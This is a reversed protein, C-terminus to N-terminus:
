AVGGMSDQRVPFYAVAWTIGFLPVVMCQFNRMCPVLAQIYYDIPLYIEKRHYLFNPNTKGLTQDSIDCHLETSSQGGVSFFTMLLPAGFGLGIGRGRLFSNSGGGGGAGGGVRM